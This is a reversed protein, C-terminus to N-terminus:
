LKTYNCFEPHIDGPIVSESRSPLGKSPCSMPLTTSNKTLSLPYTVDFLLTPLQTDTVVSVSKEDLLSESIM